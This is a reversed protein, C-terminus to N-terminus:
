PVTKQYSTSIVEVMSHLRIIVDSHKMHKVTFQANYWNSGQGESGEREQMFCKCSSEDSFMVQYKKTFVLKKDIMAPMLLLEKAAVHSPLNLM